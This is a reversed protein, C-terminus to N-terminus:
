RRLRKIKLGAKVIDVKSPDGKSTGIVKITRSKKTSRRKRGIQLEFTENAGPQLETTELRGTFFSSTFNYAKGGTKLLFYTKFHRNSRTGRITITDRYNPCDNQFKIPYIGYPKRDDTKRVAVQRSGRTYINSGKYGTSGKAKIQLDSRYNTIGPFFQVKDLHVSTQPSNSNVNTQRFFIAELYRDTGEALNFETKQWDSSGSQRLVEEGDVDVFLYGSDQDTETKHYFTLLGAEDTLSVYVSAATNPEAVTAKISSSGVASDLVDVSWDNSYVGNEREIAFALAPNQSLPTVRLNDVIAAKTGGYPNGEDIDSDQYYSFNFCHTGPGLRLLQESVPDEGQLSLRPQNNISLNCQSFAGTEGYLAWAFEVVAPGVVEFIMSSTEGDELDGSSAHDGDVSIGSAENVWNTSHFNIDNNELAQQLEPKTPIPTVVINDIWASRLGTVSTTDRDIHWSINQLGCDLEISRQQWDQEGTISFSYGSANFGFTDFYQELSSKWRFSLTAPGQVEADLVSYKKDDLTSQISDVGDYTTTTNYTWNGAPYDVETERDAASTTFTIGSPNDVGDAITQATLSSPVNLLILAVASEILLFGQFSSKM